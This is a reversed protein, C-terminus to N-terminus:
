PKRGGTSTDGGTDKHGEMWRKLIAMQEDTLISALQRLFKDDCGKLIEKIQERDTSNKLAERAAQNIANIKEKAEERTIEGAKYAAIVEERAAKARAIIARMQEHHMALANKVCTDHEALFQRVQAQQEETLNLAKILRAFPHPLPKRGKPDVNPNPREKAENEITADDFRLPAALLAYSSGADNFSEEVVPSVNADSCATMGFGAFAGAVLLAIWTKRIKM